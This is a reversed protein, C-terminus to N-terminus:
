KQPQLFVLIGLQAEVAQRLFGRLREVNEILFSLSEEEQSWIGPYIEKATMDRPNYRKRIEYTSFTSFIDLIAKTENATFARLPGHKEDTAGIFQGGNVLFDLPANGEWATGTLVYHIGHWAREITARLGEGPALELAAGATRKPKKPKKGRAEADNAEGAEDVPAPDALRWGLEADEVVRQITADSLTVLGLCMSM